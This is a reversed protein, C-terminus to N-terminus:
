EPLEVRGGTEVLAMFQDMRTRLDGPSVDLLRRPGIGEVCFSGLASGFYIARRMTPHALNGVRAIYGVLGGAFSDGAGTPDVVEELPYGPAFFMGADDFFLAGHEGRKIILHKPGRKRIDAAAKVLNHIGSLDRAEEDNIVLLDVKKLVEGLLKPEGNIWFNMTDAVVLQPKEVQALVELQLAPHINGLLVFPSAKFEAPIKPRFDAFVNLQTDLTTRSSLDASYRGRWRFTKGDAREVGATDVGRKRLDDLVSEPFDNGVVGVVRVPTLLSAAISSYTAAGGLVNEFTGSPMELDDYALSGVILVPSRNM